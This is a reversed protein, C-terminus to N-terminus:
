AVRRKRRLGLLAGGILLMVGSTPEPVPAATFDGVDWIKRGSPLDQRASQVAAYDSYGSYGVVMDEDNMLEVVFQYGSLNSPDMYVRTSWWGEELAWDVKQIYTLDRYGEAGTFGNYWGGDASVPNYDGIMASIRVTSFEFDIDSGDFEISYFGSDDAKACFAMATLALIMSFKLVKM